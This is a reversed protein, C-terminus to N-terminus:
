TQLMTFSDERAAFPVRRIIRLRLGDPLVPVRLVHFFSCQNWQHVSASICQHLPLRDLMHQQSIRGREVFTVERREAVYEDGNRRM